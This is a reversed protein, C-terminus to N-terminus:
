ASQEAPFLGPMWSWALGAPFALRLPSRSTESVIVGVHVLSNVARQATRLNTSLVTPVEGRSLEGRYLVAELVKDAKPSLAKFKVKETAWALIRERLSRPQMLREMFTVQDICVELFFATFTILAEESLNGRGDLANRRVQDCSALLRKYDDVRRALGRSVSWLAGTDLPGLLVAHTMLRVVRGNGDIFPHIWALRHHAAAAALITETPGLSAYSQEFRDMFRPVAGPSVPVHAGVKVDRTRLEGPKVRFKEHTVPDEVVLLDEPLESCFRRHIETIAERTTAVRLGGNDIWRQVMIHATAERQLSRKDRDNSYEGKLAKEIAVPHTRHGEILNSYYCNMSRVLDALASVIGEPLSHRFAASRRALDLTTDLLRVRSPSGYAIIMPEMLTINEGRGVTAGENAHKSADKTIGMFGFINSAQISTLKDFPMNQPTIM